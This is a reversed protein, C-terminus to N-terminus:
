TKLGTKMRLYKEFNQWTASKFQLDSPRHYSDFLQAVLLDPLPENPNYRVVFVALVRPSMALDQYIVFQHESLPQWENPGLPYKHEILVMGRPGSVVWDIDTGPLPVLEGLRDSM